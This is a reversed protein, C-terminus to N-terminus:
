SNINRPDGVLRHGTLIKLADSTKNGLHGDVAIKEELFGNLFSQLKLNEEVEKSYYSFYPQQVQITVFGKEEMSKLLGAAGCQQSVLDDSWKGDSAYKGKIYLNTYSWLYPSLVEPHHRRYGLGNYSEIYFLIHALSWETKKTLGQHELADITSEEWTFPPNGLPRGVPVRKTKETLPDGNHIHCTFDLRAELCHILSIFYWPVKTKNEIELYRDKNKLIKEILFDFIFTKEKLIQCKKYLNVYELTLENNLIM